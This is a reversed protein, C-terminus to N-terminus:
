GLQFSPVNRNLLTLSQRERKKTQKNNPSATNKRSRNILIRRPAPAYKMSGIKEKFATGLGGILFALRNFGRAEKKKIGDNVLYDLESPQRCFM